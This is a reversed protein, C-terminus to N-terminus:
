ETKRRNRSVKRKTSKRLRPAAMVTSKKAQNDSQTLSSPIVMFESTLCDRSREIDGELLDRDFLLSVEAMSVFGFDLFLGVLIRHIFLVYVHHPRQSASYSPHAHCICTM